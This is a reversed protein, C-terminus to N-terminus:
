LYANGTDIAEIKLYKINQLFINFFVFTTEMTVKFEEYKHESAAMNVIAVVNNAVLFNKNYAGQLRM